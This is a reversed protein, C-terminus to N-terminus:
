INIIMVFLHENEHLKKMECNINGDVKMAIEILGLGAGGRDSISGNKLQDMKLVKLEDPNKGNLSKIKASLKVGENEEIFNGVYISYREEEKYLLFASDHSSADKKGHKIVNDTMEVLVSYVRKYKRKDPENVKLFQKIEILRENIVDFTFPGTYADLPESEVESVFSMVEEIINFNAM